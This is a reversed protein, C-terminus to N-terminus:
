FRETSKNKEKEPRNLGGMEDNRKKIVHKEGYRGVSSPSTRPGLHRGLAATGQDLASVMNSLNMFILLKMLFDLPTSADPYSLARERVHYVAREKHGGKAFTPVYLIQMMFYIKM